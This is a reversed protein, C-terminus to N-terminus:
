AKGFGRTVSPPIRPSGLTHHVQRHCTPHLLVRNDATDSGGHSRWVKHHSHWGTLTTIAEGCHPCRGDQRRWLALLTRRGKLSAAMKLALRKEFYPEWQPDYPNAEGNIKTHRTISLSHATFLHVARLTGKPGRAKGSFVWHREGLTHFYRAKVWRVGKNPHRRKAWRWLTQFIAHDVSQFVKASVAHRHYMAWGRIIPNLHCILSGAAASKNGKIVTRVKRLLTKVSKASPKILLKGNYKRLHQGLFDFGDAIHTIVTKETSLELGREKLFAEVLPKVEQQLLEQTAGTIVFDDALRILNVKPCTRQGGKWVYRPFTTRLRAELGDLALNAIVPSCIGGQPTGADTPHLVQGEMYGAKLWKRLIAKDMPIHALLWDHSFEDFCARIDGELVWQPSAKKALAIFCQEIADAPARSTRFGYSNPDARTEAIPDVALLYLAQMARDRMTPIGLGRLKGNSKAVYVRRLPQPRYGRQRLTGIAMAKQEPTRWTVRDVGPTRKGRNETVRRVALAKASLSHTLLHQLARAKGWRGDQIAKVIRAQLRRVTQHVHRWDIAHWDMPDHSAAGARRAAQVTPTATM